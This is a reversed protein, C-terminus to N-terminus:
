ARPWALTFVLASITIVTCLLFSKRCLGRTKKSSSEIELIKGEFIKKLSEFETVKKEFSDITRARLDVDQHEKNSLGLTIEKLVRGTDAPNLRIMEIRKQYFIVDDAINNSSKKLSKLNLSNEPLFKSSIERAKAIQVDIAVYMCPFKDSHLEGFRPVYKWDLGAQSTM